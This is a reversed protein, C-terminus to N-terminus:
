GDEAQMVPRGIPRPLRQFPSAERRLLEDVEKRLGCRNALAMTQEAANIDEMKLEARAKQFLTDAIIGSPLQMAHEADDRARQWNGLAALAVARQAFYAAPAADGALEIAEGYRAVAEEFNKALLADNGLKKKQEAQNM